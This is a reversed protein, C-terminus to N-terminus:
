TFRQIIMVLATNVLPKTVRDFHAKYWTNKPHTTRALCFPKQMAPAASSTWNQTKVGNRSLYRRYQIIKALPVQRSLRLTQYPEWPQPISNELAPTPRLDRPVRDESSGNASQRVRGTWLCTKVSSKKTKCLPTGCTDQLLTVLSHGM